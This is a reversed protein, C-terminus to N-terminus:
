SQIDTSGNRDKIIKKIHNNVLITFEGKTKIPEAEEKNALLLIQEHIKTLERGILIEALPFVEKLIELTNKIRHMSEYCVLNGQIDRYKELECQKKNKKEPLFGLFVTPAAQSGSVSLLTSMANVGPIPVVSYGAKRVLRVLGSGPDSIGPTGADSIYALNQGDALKQLIWQLNKERNSRDGYLTQYNTQIQYHSLLKQSKKKNECLILDVNNLTEIARFTIDALNGIPTAVIYLSGSM